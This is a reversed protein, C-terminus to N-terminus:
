NIMTKLFKEISKMIESTPMSYNNTLIAFVYTGKKRIVYGAYCRVGSLSGSKAHISSKKASDVDSLVSRLTGPGGPQPLSNFFMAFNTSEKMKLFYEAFFRPSVYNQRSLGSGDVSTFGNEPLRMDLLLRKVAVASSDYSGRGTVEKGILKFLTEAYLNNSIRNTVNIIKWLEKSYTEGLLIIENNALNRNKESFLFVDDNSKIGNKTLYERFHYACSLAPFKNSVSSKASESNKLISGTFQGKKNLDSIFYSLNNGKMNLSNTRSLDYEMGPVVPYVGSIRINDDPTSGPSFNFDQVNEYFTLGSPASGFSAGINGWSWSEPIPENDFFSDDAVINGAIQKIGAKKIFGLWESFINEIPYAVTDRSGLTPDGGGKIIINGYLVSDSITGSYAVGTKFRYDPGFLNLALGTTITKMTSATLLPMDPNLSAVTKGKDDAVLIAIVANKYTQEKILFNINKRIKSRNQAINQSSISLFLLFFALFIHKKM